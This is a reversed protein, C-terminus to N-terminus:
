DKKIELKGYRKRFEQLEMLWHMLQRHDNSCGDNDCSLMVERCHEIAQELRM